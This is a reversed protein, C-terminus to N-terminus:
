GQPAAAPDVFPEAPDSVVVKGGEIKAAVTATTFLRPFPPIPGPKSTTYPPIIGGMDLAELKNLAELTATPTVERGDEAIQKMIRELTWAALWTVVTGDVLPVDKAYKERDANFMEIGPADSSPPMASAVVLVDDGQPGLAGIIQENLVLNLAAVKADADRQRVAQIATAQGPGPIFVLVGDAGGELANAAAPAFDTTDLPVQVIKGIEVGVNQAARELGVIGQQVEPLRPFIVGMKKVGVRKFVAPAGGMQTSTAAMPFSNDLTAANNDTVSSGVVAIGEKRLIPYASGGNPAQLGVVATVGERVADRACATAKNADAQHDCWLIEVPRGDIGGAANIANARAELIQHKPQRQGTQPITYGDIGMIKIPEGSLEAAAADAADAGEDDAGCAGVGTLLALAALATALRRGTEGVVTTHVM